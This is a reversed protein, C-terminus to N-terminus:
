TRGGRQQEQQALEISLGPTNLITNVGSRFRAMEQGNLPIRAGGSGLRTVTTGAPPNGLFNSLHAADEIPQPSTIEFTSVTRPNDRNEGRADRVTVRYVFQEQRAPAQEEQGRVRLGARALRQEPPVQRVTPGRREARIAEEAGSSVAMVDSFMQDADRQSIVHRDGSLLRLYSRLNMEILNRNGPATRDVINHIADQDEQTLNPYRGLINEVQSYANAWTQTSMQTEVRPRPAAEERQPQAQQPQPAAARRQEAAPRPTANQVYTEYRAELDRRFSARDLGQKNPTVNEFIMSNFSNWNICQQWDVGRRWDRENLWGMASMFQAPQLNNRECFQTIQERALDRMGRLTDQQREPAVNLEAASQIKAM